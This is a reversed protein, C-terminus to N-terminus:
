ITIGYKSSLWLEVAQYESASLTRDYVIVEAVMWDSGESAGHMGNVITLPASATGGSSGRTVGNSRYLSNQDTSLVWSNGHSDSVASIWGNHFAVGSNGGWFGSLWNVGVGDFIRAKTGGTYRAVHFLTYTAPLVGSGFNIKSSPTGSLTFFTRSAGNGTTSVLSVTGSAVSANRGNGSSDPWTSGSITSAEHWAFLGSSIPPRDLWANDRNLQYQESLGFLGRILNTATPGLRGGNKPM